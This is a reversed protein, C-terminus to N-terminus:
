NINVIKDCYHLIINTNRYKHARSHACHLTFTILFFTLKNNMTKSRAIKVTLITAHLLPACSALFNGLSIFGESTMSSLSSSLGNVACSLNANGLPAVDTNLLKNVSSNSM